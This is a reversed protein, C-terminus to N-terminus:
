LEGDLNGSAPEPLDGLGQNSFAKSYGSSEPAPRAQTPIDISECSFGPQARLKGPASPVPQSRFRKLQLSIVM